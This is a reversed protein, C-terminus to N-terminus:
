YLSSDELTYFYCGKVPDQQLTQTNVLGVGPPEEDGENLQNLVMVLVLEPVVIKDSTSGLYLLSNHIYIIIYARTFM